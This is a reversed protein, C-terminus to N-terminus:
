CATSDRDVLSIDPFVEEESQTKESDTIKDIESKAFLGGCVLAVVAVCAIVITVIRKRGNKKASKDKHELPASFVTSEDQNTNENQEDGINDNAIPQELTKDQNNEFFESM